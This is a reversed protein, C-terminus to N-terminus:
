TRNAIKQALAQVIDEDEWYQARVPKKRSLVGTGGGILYDIHDVLCPMINLAKDTPHAQKLWARFAWDDNVGKEWFHKYIPNGIIYTSVWESCDRAYENPIRICPFSFWMNVREVVGKKKDSTGDYQESSFGCVIGDDYKETREKFDKCICVDDQLHWRGGDGDCMAFSKLCARLNGDRAVDEYVQIDERRIGQDLMSPILFENVYWMRRPVAHIMYKAM